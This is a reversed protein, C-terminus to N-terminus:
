VGQPRTADDPLPGKISDPKITLLRPDIAAQAAAAAGAPAGADADVGLRAIGSSALCFVRPGRMVAVRGAQGRRGKVLRWEMPLDLVVRDGAQWRRAIAHFGDDGRAAPEPPGDNVRITAGGCWRPIRLRLALEVPQAPDVAVVVRGSTPYDTEQRIAVAVGGEDISTRSETYLNVAVGGDAGRYYVFGPLEAVIRRYNCPCCYTDVQYYTRPGDFPTYYRLRRGDPSQAAFLANHISREMVDGSRGLGDRRLCDDMLRIMCGTACTEGLNVTGQQTDHWCEHDGCGGTIVMGEKALLFEVATDLQRRLGGHQSAVAPDIRELFAQAMAHDIFAYAHGDIKGWRGTVIPLNWAPLRRDTVVFDRYAAKGTCEALRLLAWDLGTTATDNSVTGDGMDRGPHRRMGDILRDAIRAAADLSRREGFLLFDSTLGHILYASEHPDWLRWIRSEEPMIGLYGDPQQVAIAEAVTRNKLALVREDGTHKAMHVLSDIFMGLGVFGGRRDRSRFPALFDRDVDLELLNGQITAAIRRGIEGGVRTAGPELPVLRDAASATPSLIALAVATI